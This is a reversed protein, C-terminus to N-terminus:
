TAGKEFHTIWQTGIFQTYAPPIAQSLEKRNMWDIGMAAQAVVLNGYSNGCVTVMGSARDGKLSGGSTSRNRDNLLRGSGIVIRHKPHTLGLLLWSTEFRRHRYVKLGFMLGCLTIGRLPADEVNEIVWPRGTAALAARTPELLLPYVKDKLWPLHRMRSYGQCPPSAHIADYEHGHEVLYTLADAQIFAFPFRPMPRHDVGTVDFGARSYGEAAGGAGCFLDLLRPRSV